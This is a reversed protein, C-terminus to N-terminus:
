KVGRLARERRWYDLMVKPLPGDDAAAAAEIAANAKGLVEELASNRRELSARAQAAALDNKRITEARAEAADRDRAPICAFLDRESEPRAPCGLSAELSAIRPQLDHLAASDSRLKMYHVTAGAVAIAV